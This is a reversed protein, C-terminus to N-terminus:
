EFNDGKLDKLKKEGFVGTAFGKLGILAELKKNKKIDKAKEEILMEIVKSQSLMAISSLMKLDNDTEPSLTINKRVAKEKIDIM